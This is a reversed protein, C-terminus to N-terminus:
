FGYRKFLDLSAQKPDATGAASSIGMSQQAPYEGTGAPGLMFERFHEPIPSNPQDIEDWYLLNQRPNWGTDYRQYDLFDPPTLGMAEYQAASVGQLADRMAPSQASSLFEEINMGGPQSTPIGYTNPNIALPDGSYREPPLPTNAVPAPTATTTGSKDVPNQTAPDAFFQSAMNPQGSDAGGYLLTEVYGGPVEDYVTRRQGNGSQWNDRSSFANPLYWNNEPM